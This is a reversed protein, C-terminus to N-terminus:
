SLRDRIESAILNEMRTELHAFLGGIEARVMTVVDDRFHNQAELISVMTRSQGAQVEALRRMEVRMAKQEDRIEKLLHLMLNEPEEAM